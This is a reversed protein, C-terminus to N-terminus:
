KKHRSKFRADCPRHRGYGDDTQCDYYTWDRQAAVPKASLPSGIRAVSSVSAAASLTMLLTTIGGLALSRITM